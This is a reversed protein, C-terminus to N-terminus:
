EAKASNKDGSSDELAPSSGGGSVGLSGEERPESSFDSAGLKAKRGLFRLIMKKEKLAFAEEEDKGAARCKVGAFSRLKGNKRLAARGEVTGQDRITGEWAKPLVISVEGFVFTYTSEGERAKVPNGTTFSELPTKAAELYDSEGIYTAYCRHTPSNGDDIRVADGNSLECVYTLEATMSCNAFAAPSLLLCLQTFILLPKM